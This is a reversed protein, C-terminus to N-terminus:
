ASITVATMMFLPVYLPLHITESFIHWRGKPGFLVGPLLNPHLM